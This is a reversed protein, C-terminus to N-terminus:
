HKGGVAKERAPGVEPIALGKKVTKVPGPRSKLYNLILERARTLGHRKVIYDLKVKDIYDLM